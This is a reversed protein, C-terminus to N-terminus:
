LEKKEGKVVGAGGVTGAPIKVKEKGAKETRKALKLSAVVADAVLNVM